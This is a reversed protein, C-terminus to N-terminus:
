TAKEKSLERHRESSDVAGSDLVGEFAALNGILGDLVQALSAVEKPSLGSLFEEHFREGLPRTAALADEGAATLRVLRAAGGPKAAIREVLGESEMTAVMRSVNQVSLMADQSLETITTPAPRRGIASLMLWRSSTLGIPATMRDGIRMAMNHIIFFSLIM